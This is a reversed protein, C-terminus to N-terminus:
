RLHQVGKPAVTAGDRARLLVWPVHELDFGSRLGRDFYPPMHDGVILIDTPPLTPDMAMRSIADALRHHVHFLRCLSRPLSNFRAMDKGCNETGLSPDPLVPLHSNLTLWYIFQPKAAQKIQAGILAPVDTDCAGPFVGGCHRVGVQELRDGFMERDFGLRQWWENREFFGGDFAHMATTQYGAQKMRQPLCGGAAFDFTTYNNWQGCLERM